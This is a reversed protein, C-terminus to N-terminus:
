RVCGIWDAVQYTLMEVLVISIFFIVMLIAKKMDQRNLKRQEDAKEIAKRQEQLEYQKWYEEREKQMTLKNALAMDVNAMGKGLEKM